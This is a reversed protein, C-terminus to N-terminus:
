GFRERMRATAMANCLTEVVNRHLADDLGSDTLAVHTLEHYYTLWRHAPKATTDITISRTSEEWIGWCESGDPHIVAPLLIITVDGGPMSVKKPLAPYRKM